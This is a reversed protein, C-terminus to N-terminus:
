VLLVPWKSKDRTRITSEATTRSNNCKVHPMASAFHINAITMQTDTQRDMGWWMWVSSCLGLHLKPSHYPTGELQASNPLNAIPARTENSHCCLASHAIDALAQVRETGPEYRCCHFSTRTQTHHSTLDVRQVFHRHFIELLPRLLMKVAAAVVRAFEADLDAKCVFGSDIAKITVKDIHAVRSYNMQLSSMTCPSWVQSPLEM